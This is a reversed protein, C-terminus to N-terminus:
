NIAPPMLDSEGKFDRVIFQRQCVAEAQSIPVPRPHFHLPRRWFEYRFTIVVSAKQAAFDRACGVVPWSVHILQDPQLDMLMNQWEASMVAEIDDKMEVRIYHTKTLSSANDCCLVAEEPWSALLKHFQRNVLEQVRNRFKCGYDTSHRGFPDLQLLIM